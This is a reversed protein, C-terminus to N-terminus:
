VLPVQVLRVMLLVQQGIVLQLQRYDVRDECRHDKHSADAELRIQETEHM